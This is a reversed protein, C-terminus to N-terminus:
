QNTALINFEEDDISVIPCNTFLQFKLVLLYDRNRELIFLSDYKKEVEIVKNKNEQTKHTKFDEIVKLYESFYNLLLREEKEYMSKNNPDYKNENYKLSLNKLFQLLVIGIVNEKDNVQNVSMLAITRKLKDFCNQTMVYIAILLLKEYASNEQLMLLKYNRSCSDVNELIKSGEKEEFKNIKKKLDIEKSLFVVVQTFINNLLFLLNDLNAKDSSYTYFKSDYCYKMYELLYCINETSEICEEYSIYKIMNEYSIMIKFYEMHRFKTKLNEFAIAKVFTNLNIINSNDLCLRDEILWDIINSFSNLKSKKFYISSLEIKCSQNLFHYEEREINCLYTFIFNKLYNKEKSSIKMLNLNYYKHRLEFKIDNSNKLLSYNNPLHTKAFYSLYKIIYKLKELEGFEKNSENMQFELDIIDNSITNLWKENNYIANPDLNKNLEIYDIPNKAKTKNNNNNKIIEEEENSNFNEIKAIDLLLSVFISQFTSKYIISQFALEAVPYANKIVNYFCKRALSLEIKYTQLKELIQNKRNFDTTTLYIYELQKKELYFSEFMKKYLSNITIALKIITYHNSIRSLSLEIDKIINPVDSPYLHYFDTLLLISDIREYIDLNSHNFMFSLSYKKSFVRDGTRYDFKSINQYFSYKEKDQSDSNYTISYKELYNMLTLNKINFLTCFKLLPYLFNKIDKFQIYKYNLIERVKNDIFINILSVLNYKSSHLHPFLLQLKAILVEKDTRVDHKLLNALNKNYDKFINSKIDINNKTYDNVNKLIDDSNEVCEIYKAKLYKSITESIEIIKKFQDFLHPVDLVNGSINNKLEEESLYEDVAKDYNAILNQLSNFLDNLETLIEILFLDLAKNKATKNIGTTNYNSIFNNIYFETINSEELKNNEILKSLDNDCSNLTSNIKENNKLITSKLSKSIIIDFNSDSTVEEYAKENKNNKNIECFYMQQKSFISKLRYISPLDNKILTFSAKSLLAKM